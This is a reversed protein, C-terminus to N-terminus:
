GDIGKQPIHRRFLKFVEMEMPIGALLCLRYLLLKVKDHRERWPDGPINTAQVNDGFEDIAVRGKIM